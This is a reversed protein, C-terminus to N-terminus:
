VMDLVAPYSAETALVAIGTLATWVYRSDEGAALAQAPDALTSLANLTEVNDLEKEEVFDTVKELNSHEEVETM